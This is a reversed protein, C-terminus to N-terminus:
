INPGKTATRCFDVLTELTEVPRQILEIAIERTLNQNAEDLYEVPSKGDIRALMLAPLLKCIRAELKATNEWNVHARYGSWFQQISDLLRHRSGALHISKLVLHNLCFAPDFSADGMTACEADLVLPYGDRFFINKPSVDGHVLVRDSSALQKVLSELPGALKPHRTATFVLYPELRLAYFDQHNNFLQRDFEAQASVAHIKGILDGVKFAENQEAQQQLLAEKWLYIADGGLFEMVFGHHAESRGYLKVACEPVSNSAVKLWEYEARNRHVPAEWNEAVKLKPLAFKICYSTDDVTVRAIDSSVGGALPTISIKSNASGIDLEYILAKYRDESDSLKYRGFYNNM